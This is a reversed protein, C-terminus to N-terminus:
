YKLVIFIRFVLASFLLKSSPELHHIALFVMENYEDVEM